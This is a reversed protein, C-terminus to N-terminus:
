PVGSPKPPYSGSWDTIDCTSTQDSKVTVITTCGGAHGSGDYAVVRYTGPILYSSTMSFSTQGSGTIFYSYNYPSEQEFAVISLKPVSGYPYNSIGGDITGPNGPTPKETATPKSTKSPVPTKSPETTNTPIGATATEQPSPLSQGTPTHLANLTAVVRTAIADTDLTATAVLPLNCGALFVAPIALISLLHIKPMKMNIEEQRNVVFYNIISGNLWKRVPLPYFPSFNVEQCRGAAPMYQPPDYFAM